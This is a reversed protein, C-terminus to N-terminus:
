KKPAEVREPSNAAPRTNADAEKKWEEESMIEFVNIVRNVSNTTRAIEIAAVAEKQTVKGMLFVDNGETIVKIHAIHFAETNTLRSKVKTTMASDNLRWQTTSLPIQKTEDVIRKANPTQKILQQFANRLEPTPTEGTLLLVGNFVNANVHITEGFNETIRREVLDALKNDDVQQAVTRRESATYVGAVAGGLIVVPACASLTLAGILVPILIKKM